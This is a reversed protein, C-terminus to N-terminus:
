GARKWPPVKGGAAMPAQTPAKVAPAAGGFPEYSKPETDETSNKRYGLKVVMPIHHLEETDEVRLKGVAHCISNLERQAIEVATSNSNWLNLITWFRRGEHEGEHVSFELNIFYNGATKSERQESKVIVAVYTGPPLPSRDGMTPGGTADYTGGLNAM